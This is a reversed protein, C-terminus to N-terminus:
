VELSRSSRRAPSGLEIDHDAPTRAAKIEDGDDGGDGDCFALSQLLADQNRVVPVPDTKGKWEGQGFGEFALRLLQLDGDAAWHVRKNEKWRFRVMAYGVLTDIYIGLGILVSGVVLIVSIGLISFSLYGNANRVIVRECLARKGSKLGVGEPIDPRGEASM